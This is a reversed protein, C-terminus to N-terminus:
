VSTSIVQVHSVTQSMINTSMGFSGSGIKKGIRYKGGVRLDMSTMRGHAPTPYTMTTGPQPRSYPKARSSRTSQIIRSSRINPIHHPRNPPKRNTAIYNSILCLNQPYLRLLQSATCPSSPTPSCLFSGFRQPAILVLSRSFLDLHLTQHLCLNSDNHLFSSILSPEFPFLLCHSPYPWM